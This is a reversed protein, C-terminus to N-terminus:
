IHTGIMDVCVTKTNRMRSLLAAPTSLLYLHAPAKHCGVRAQELLLYFDELRPACLSRGVLSAAARPLPWWPARVSGVYRSHAMHQEVPSFVLILALTSLADGSVSMEIVALILSDRRERCPFSPVQLPVRPSHPSSLLSVLSWPLANSVRVQVELAPQSIFSVLHARPPQPLLVGFTKTWSSM